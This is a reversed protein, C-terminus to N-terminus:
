IKEGQGASSPPSLAARPPVQGAALTLGGCTSIMRAKGLHPASLVTEQVVAHIKRIHRRDQVLYNVQMLHDNHEQKTHSDSSEQYLAGWCKPAHSM